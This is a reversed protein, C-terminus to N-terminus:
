WNPIALVQEITTAVDVQIKLENSHMFGYNLRQAILAAFGKFQDLTMPVRNNNFDIWAFDAPLEGVLAITGAAGSINNYTDKTLDFTSGMYQIGNEPLLYIGRAMDIEESKKQKAEDLTQPISPDSFAKTTENYIWNYNPKVKLKTVDIVYVHNENYEPLAAGKFISNVILKGSGDPIVTVYDNSPLTVAM